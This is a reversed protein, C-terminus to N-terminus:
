YIRNQISKISDGSNESIYTLTTQYCSHGMMLRIDNSSVQHNYMSTAFYRRFVHVTLKDIGCRKGLDLTINEIARETLPKNSEKKYSLSFVYISEYVTGKKYNIYDELHKKCRANMPVFREKNGKGIVKIKNNTFDINSVLLGCVESVRCGTSELMDVLALARLRKIESDYSLAADRIRELDYSNINQKIVIPKKITPVLNKSCPNYSIYKYDYCWKFFTSLYRRINDVGIASISETKYHLYDHITKDTVSLLPIQCHEFFSKVTYGYVKLTKKSIKYTEKFKLYEEIVEFTTEMTDCKKDENVVVCNKLNISLSSTLKQLQDKSLEASMDIIIDTIVDGIKKM